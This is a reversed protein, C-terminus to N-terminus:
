LEEDIYVHIETNDLGTATALKKIEVRQQNMNETVQYAFPPRTDSPHIIVNGSTKVRVNTLTMQNTGKNVFITSDGTGFTAVIKRWGRKYSAAGAKVSTVDIAKGTLTSAVDQALPIQGSSTGVERSAAATAPITAGNFMVKTTPHVQVETAGNILGTDGKDGKDGQAGTGVKITFKHQRDDIEGFPSKNIAEVKLLPM